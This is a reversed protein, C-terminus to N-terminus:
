EWSGQLGPLCVLMCLLGCAAAAKPLPDQQSLCPSAAYLQGMSCTPSSSSEQDVTSRAQLETPMGQAHVGQRQAQILFPQPWEPVMLTGALM